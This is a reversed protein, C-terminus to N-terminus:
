RADFVVLRRKVLLFTHELIGGATSTHLAEAAAKNPAGAHIVTRQRRGMEEKWNGRSCENRWAQSFVVRIQGEGASPFQEEKNRLFL